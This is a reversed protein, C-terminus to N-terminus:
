AAVTDYSPGYVEELTLRLARIALRDAMVDTIRGSKKARHYARRDTDDFLKLTSVGRLEIADLLPGADLMVYGRFPEVALLSDATRSNVSAVRGSLIHWPTTLGVGAEEAIARKTWGSRILERLHDAIRDAPVRSREGREYAQSYRNAALKCPFCRCGVDYSRRTGHTRTDRRPLSTTGEPDGTRAWRQYHRSCWGRARVPDDCGDIICPNM